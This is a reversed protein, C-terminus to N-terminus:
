WFVVDTSTSSWYKVSGQTKVRTLWLDPIKVSATIELRNSISLAGTSTAVAIPWSIPALITCVKIDMRAKIDRRLMFNIFELSPEFSPRLHPDWRLVQLHATCWISCILNIMQRVNKNPPSSIVKAQLVSWRVSCDMLTFHGKGANKQTKVIM